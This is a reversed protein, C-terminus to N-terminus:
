STQRTVIAFVCGLQPRVQSNIVLFLAAKQFFRRLFKQCNQAMATPLALAWPGADYLKKAEKQECFLLRKRQKRRCAELARPDAAAALYRARDEPLVDASLALIPVAAAPPPLKRIQRTAEVRGDGANPRDNIRALLHRGSRQIGALYEREKAPLDATLLVDALRLVGTLGVIPRWSSRM